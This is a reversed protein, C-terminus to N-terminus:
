QDRRELAAVEEQQEMGEPSARQVKNEWQDQNVQKELLVESAQNVVIVRLVLLVWQELFGLGVEQVRSVRHDLLDKQGEKDKLAQNAL